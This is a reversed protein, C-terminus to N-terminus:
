DRTLRRYMLTIRGITTSYYRQKYIWQCALLIDLVQVLKLFWSWRKLAIYVSFLLQSSWFFLIAQDNRVLPLESNKM